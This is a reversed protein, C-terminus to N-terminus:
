KGQEMKLAETRIRGATNDCADNWSEDHSDAPPNYVNAEAIKAAAEFAIPLIARALAELEGDEFLSMPVPDEERMARAMKEILKDM